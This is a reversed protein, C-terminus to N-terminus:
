TFHGTNLMVAVHTHGNGLQYCRVRLNMADDSVTWSSINCYSPPPGMIGAFAHGGPTGADPFSVVYYGEDLETIAPAAGGPSSWGLPTPPPWYNDMTASVPVVGRSYSLAFRSNVASGTADYCAVRLVEPDPWFGPDLANCHVASSGYATVRLAGAAWDGASDLAFAGLEVEYHGVGDPSVVIPQGASDYSWTAPPTYGGPPPTPDSSWLYGRSPGDTRNTVHAVFRSDAPDGAPTFCRVNVVEDGASPVWSSVTCVNNNGYAGAHAVGGTGAMGLFRVQYVGVASRLIQVVGGSSNYEYGTAAMYNPNAPQNAWVYGEIPPVVGGIPLDSAPGVQIAGAQVPGATSASAAVIAAILLNATRM